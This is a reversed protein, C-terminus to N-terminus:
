AITDCVCYRYSVKQTAQFTRTTMMNGKTSLLLKRVRVFTISLSSHTCTDVRGRQTQWKTINDRLKSSLTDHQMTFHLILKDRHLRVCPKIM